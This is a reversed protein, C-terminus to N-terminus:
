VRVGRERNGTGWERNGVGRGVECDGGRRGRPVGRRGAGELVPGHLRGAHRGGVGPAGGAGPAFGAPQRQGRGGQGGGGPPPRDGGPTGDVARLRRRDRPVHARLGRSDGRLFGGDSSGGGAASGKDTFDDAEDPVTGMVDIRAHFWFEKMAYGNWDASPPQANGPGAYEYYNGGCIVVEGAGYAPNPTASWEGRYTRPDPHTITMKLKGADAADSYVRVHIDGPVNVPQLGGLGLYDAALPPVNGSGWGWPWLWACQGTQPNNLALMHALTDGCRAWVRALKKRWDDANLTETISNTGKYHIKLEVSQADGTHALFGALEAKSTRGQLPEHAAPKVIDVGIWDDTDGDYDVLQNELYDATDGEDVKVTGLDDALRDRILDALVQYIRPDTWDLAIGDDTVVLPAVVKAAYVGAGAGLSRHDALAGAYIRRFNEALEAPASAAPNVLPVIPKRQPRDAM